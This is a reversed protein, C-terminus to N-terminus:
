VIFGKLINIIEELSTEGYSVKEKQNPWKEYFINHYKECEKLYNLTISHEGDRGRSQIRKMCTDVPTNLYLIKQFSIGSTMVFEFTMKYIKYDIESILHSDYLMKVFIYHSSYISRETIIVGGNPEEKLIEITEKLDQAMTMLVMTQFKYANEKPNKYYQDLLSGSSDKINLWIDIPEPKYIIPRNNITTGLDGKLQKLLYSKGGAINGEISIIIINNQKAEQLIKNTILLSNSTSM